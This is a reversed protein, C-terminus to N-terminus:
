LELRPHRCGRVPTVCPDGLHRAAVGCAPAPLLSPWAGSLVFEAATSVQTSVGSATNLLSIANNQVYAVLPEASSPSWCVYQLQEVTGTLPKVSSDSVDLLYYEALFSHRWGPQKNTFLIM